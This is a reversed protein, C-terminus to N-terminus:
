AVAADTEPARDQPVGWAGGDVDGEVFNWPLRGGLKLAVRLGSRFGDEHFGYGLWAGAFWTRKVGQIRNFIRQAAVAAADFQPHDYEYWDFTLEERPELDPNLTVYLSHRKDIGQLMNMNYNVAPAGGEGRLRYTWAAQAGRAKPLLAPDRHLAVRNPAYRIAGILEREEPTPDELMKLAQDSHCALVVDDYRRQNGYLDTVWVGDDARRVRAAADHFQAKGELDRALARVYERSGGKVTRWMPRNMQMLRHNDFFRIFSEAPFDRMGSESASWIAAGMPLLYRRQFNESFGHADLWAGLSLGGLTEAHLDAQGQKNFRLIERLMSLFEPRVLNRKQAFLGGFGNSSWELGGELSFGFSMDTEFSGIGLHSFLAVLNPYNKANFVIFGTDVTIPTGDYDIDVTAAHGGLRDRKEFITVNHTDRMAWAAGLGSVGAGIVAVSKRPAKFTLPQSM